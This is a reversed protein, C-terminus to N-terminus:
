MYKVPFYKLEKIRIRSRPHFFNPDSILMESGCCQKAVFQPLAVLGIIKKSFM